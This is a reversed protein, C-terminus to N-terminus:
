ATLTWAGSRASHTFCGIRVLGQLASGDAFPAANPVTPAPSSFFLPSTNTKAASTKNSGLANSRPWKIYVELITCSGGNASNLDLTLSM